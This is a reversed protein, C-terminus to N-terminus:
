GGSCFRQGDIFEPLGTGPIAKKEGPLYKKQINIKWFIDKSTIGLDSSM